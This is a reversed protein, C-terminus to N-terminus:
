PCTAPVAYSEVITAVGRRSVTGSSGVGIGTSAFGRWVLCARTSGAAQVMGDRMNEFSPASPTFNLGEVFDGLFDDSTLGAAQYNKMVKWMAAAYIEGDDHVEAGTVNKYTLPFGNYPHRRIGLPESYAYEGIRDDGNIAFALVDSAGEGLAGPIAGSMSGVMRWTLGHGYEHFVIDSDLDGDIQLPAVPNKRLNAAAGLQAVLAVGTTQSVMVSSIKIKRDTGGAAFASDGGINNVIVVAVAGAAQANAVKVTFTCTGRDVIAVKGTLSGAPSKECGDSPTGVGDNVRALPANATPTTTLARGFSSSYAGYPTAGVTVLADPDGGSWLYMQM